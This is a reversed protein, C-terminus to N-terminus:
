KTEPGQWFSSSSFFSSSVMLLHLRKKLSQLLLLGVNSDDSSSNNSSTNLSGEGGGIGLCDGRASSEASENSSSPGGTESRFEGALTSYGAYGTRGVSIDGQGLPPSKLSDLVM